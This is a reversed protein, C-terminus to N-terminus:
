FAEPTGVASSASRDQWIFQLILGALMALPARTFDFVFDSVLIRQIMKPPSTDPRDM